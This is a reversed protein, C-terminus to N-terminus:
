QQRLRTSKSVAISSIPQCFGRLSRVSRFKSFYSEFWIAPSGGDQRDVSSPSGCKLKKEIGAEMGADRGNLIACLLHTGGGRRENPPFGITPAAWKATLTQIVEASWLM